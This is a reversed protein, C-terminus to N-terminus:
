IKCKNQNRKTRRRVHSWLRVCTSTGIYWRWRACDMSMGDIRYMWAIIQWKLIFAIWHKRTQRKMKHRRRGTNVSAGFEVPSVASSIFRCFSFVCVWVLYGGYIHWKVHLWRGNYSFVRPMAKIRAQSRPDFLPFYSFSCSVSVCISFRNRDLSRARTWSVADCPCLCQSVFILLCSWLTASALHEAM